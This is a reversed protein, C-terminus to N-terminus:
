GGACITPFPPQILMQTASYFLVAGFGAGLLCLPRWGSCQPGPGCDLPLRTPLFAACALAVGFVAMGAIVLREKSRMGGLSAVVLAVPRRGIGGCALMLSYGADGTHVVM